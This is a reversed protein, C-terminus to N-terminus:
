RHRTGAYRVELYKEAEDLEKPTGVHFWEGDHVVAYLRGAEMAKDYLLNLSYSGEPAGDFLRPHLIQVGTFLFPSVEGEPRRSIVGAPDINFDGMGKYGYAEVTSHVLLLGDMIADDWASRLRVLADKPGNLWLVDGNVAYFPDEGLLSLANAIGGGTELREEEPSFLIKPTARKKLHDEIMHGLHFLNVAVQEVGADELRDIARDLLSRGNVPILPKPLTDTIPRLRTGLGAALMMGRKAPTGPRPGTPNPGTPNPNSM